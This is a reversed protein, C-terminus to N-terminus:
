EIKEFKLAVSNICFRLGTPKPGDEFVHGLHAGCRSCLVETRIMFLSKDTKLIINEGAVPQFFSPWGTGSEFKADSVFLDNGCCVCRYVGKEHNNLFHGTFACETAEHRTVEFQEPTLIKRWEENSKNIKELEVYGKNEISYVKIMKGDKKKSVGINEQQSTATIALSRAVIMVFLIRIVQMFNDITIFNYYIVEDNVVTFAKLNGEQKLLLSETCYKVM